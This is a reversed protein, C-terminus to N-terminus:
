HLSISGLKKVGVSLGHSDKDRRYYENIAKKYNRYKFGKDSNDISHWWRPYHQYEAEYEKCFEIMADIGELEIKRLKSQLNKVENENLVVGTNSKAQKLEEGSIGANNAADLAKSEAESTAARKGRLALELEEAPVDPHEKLWELKSAAIMNDYEALKTQQQQTQMLFQTVSDIYDNGSKFKNIRYDYFAKEKDSMNNLRGTISAASNIRSSLFGAYQRARKGKLGRSAVLDSIAGEVDQVVGNEDALANLADSSAFGDLLSASQILSNSVLGYAQLGFSMTKLVLGAVETFKGSLSASGGSSPLDATNILGAAGIGPVSSGSVSPASGSLDPNYGAARQESIQNAFSNKDDIQHSATLENIYKLIDAESYGSNWGLLPKLLDLDSDSLGYQSQYNKLRNPAITSEFFKRIVDTMDQSNTIWGNSNIYDQLGKREEPTMSSDSVTWKGNKAM